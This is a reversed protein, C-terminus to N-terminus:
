ATYAHSPNFGTASSGDGFDWIASHTDLASPDTFSGSFTLLEQTAIVLPAAAKVPGVAATPAVNTGIVTMSDSGSMGGDDTARFSIVYTGEDNPTFHFTNGSGQAYAGGNKTVTWTSTFGASS